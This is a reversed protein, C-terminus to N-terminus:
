GPLGPLDAKVTNFGYIIRGESTGIFSGGAVLCWNETKFTITEIMHYDLVIRNM